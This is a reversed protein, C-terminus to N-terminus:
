PAGSVFGAGQLAARAAPLLQEAASMKQVFAYAGAQLARQVSERAADTSIFIVAPRLSLARLRNVAAVGDLVPMAIDVIILDPRLRATAEVLARGDFVSELVDLEPELIRRLLPHIAAHDDAIIVTPKKGTGTM